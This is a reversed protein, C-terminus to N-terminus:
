IPPGNLIARVAGTRTEPSAEAVSQADNLNIKTRRFLGLFSSSRAYGEQCISKLLECNASSINKYHKEALEWAKHTRTNKNTSMYDQIEQLSVVRDDTPVFGRKKFFSTQASFLATYIKRFAAVKEGDEISGEIPYHRKGLSVSEITYGEMKLKDTIGKLHCAGVAVFANGNDLSPKMREAMIIDRSVSLEDFYRRVPVPVDMTDPFVRFMDQLKQIDQQHYAHELEKLSSFKRGKALESEIFRYLVIQELINLKYGYGASLQEEHSELYVTKKNKLTAYKMLLIDLGNILKASDVPEADRAMMEQVFQIPPLKVLNETIKDLLFSLGPSEKMQKDLTKIYNRRISYIYDQPIRSLYPTQANQWELTLESTIIPDNMLSVTDVEFVCTTAQEFAKKVELPLTVDETDGKHLVGFLYSVEGNPATIKFFISM